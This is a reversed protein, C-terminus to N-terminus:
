PEITGSAVNSHIVERRARLGRGRSGTSAARRATPAPQECRPGVVAEVGAVLALVAAVDEVDGFGWGVVAPGVVDPGVVVGAGLAVVGAGEHASRM